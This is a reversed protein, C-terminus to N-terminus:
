QYEVKMTAGASFAGGSLTAGAQKVPVAEFKPLNPYTFNVWSNIPQRNGNRLLAVGLDNKNTKLVDADFGAGTGQIQLKMANNPANKCEVSYVVPQKKYSGDIRTTMVDNGFSVEILSNNNIVCPPAVITVTVKITTAAQALPGYLLMVMVLGCGPLYRNLRAKM